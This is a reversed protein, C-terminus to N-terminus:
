RKYYVADVPLKATRYDRDKFLFAPRPKSNIFASIHQAEEDTLSGPNLYPMAYRIFGALTYIRSAGAGDNWSDLGWLPGAKKDGIQVGQGDEGHCSSCKEIYLSDGLKADLKAIPVLKDKEIDNLGRWPPNKGMPYGGSLWTLYAAIALVEPSGPSPVTSGAIDGDSAGSRVAGTANQSRLFCGVIRDELSFLRGERKNYNPFVAAVGVLPLAKEKQGANLHCNNCALKNLSYQTSEASTRTFLQFGWRIQESLPSGDLTSDKLPNRPIDWATVMTASAPLLAENAPAPAAKNSGALDQSFIDFAVIGVVALLVVALFVMLRM